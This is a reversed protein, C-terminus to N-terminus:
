GFEQRAIGLLDHAADGGPDAPKDRLIESGGFALVLEVSQSRQVGLVGVHTM